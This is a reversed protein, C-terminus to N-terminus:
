INANGNVRWDLKGLYESITKEVEIVVNKDERAENRKARYLIFSKAAEAYDYKILMKEVMDQIDEVAPVKEPFDEELALQVEKTLTAAAVSDPNGVATLAKLIANEIKKPDYDVVAGNRKQIKVVSM